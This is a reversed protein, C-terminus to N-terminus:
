LKKIYEYASYAASVGQSVSTIAQKFKFNTVDGSAFFGSINTKSYEDIIIENKKNLKVNLDKVLESNPSNGIYVFVGDLNIKKSNKYENKLIIEEVFDNGKIEILENNNIVEIRKEKIKQNLLKLNQHEPHIENENNVIYVKKAYELILIAEKIASDGGGIVAVIKDKIFAADCLACYAVGKGFFENEGKVNLKKLKSGTALVVSKSKFTKDDLYVFFNKDKKEIKNVIDYEIDLDYDMMHNELLQTLSSGEISVFGPYNEVKGTLSLMGGPQEGIILVNLGLRSAYMACSYGSVGMGIVILDYDKKENSLYNYKNRSDFVIKDYETKEM